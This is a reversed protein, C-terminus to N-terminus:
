RPVGLLRNWMLGGMTKDMELCLKRGDGSGELTWACSEPDIKGALESDLITPQCAHGKVAVKLSGPKFEVQVDAPKTAAPVKITVSVESKDVEEQFEWPGENAQMTKNRKERDKENEEETKALVALTEPSRTTKVGGLPSELDVERTEDELAVAMSELVTKELHFYHQVTDIQKMCLRVSEAAIKRSAATVGAQLKERAFLLPRALDVWFKDSQMTTTIEELAEGITMETLSPGMGTQMELKEKASSHARLQATYTMMDEMSVTDAM